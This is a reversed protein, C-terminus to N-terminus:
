VFDPRDDERVIAWPQRGRRGIGDVMVEGAIITRESLPKGTPHGRAM